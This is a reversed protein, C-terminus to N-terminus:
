FHFGGHSHGFPDGGGGGNMMNRLMEPDITHVGAGGGGFGGGFGGGGF